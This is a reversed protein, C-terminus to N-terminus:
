YLENRSPREYTTFDIELGGEVNIKLEELAAFPLTWVRTNKNNKDIYIRTSVAGMRTLRDRMEALKLGKFNKQTLFDALTDIRFIYISDTTNKFVRGTLIHGLNDACTRNEFFEYLNFKFMAVVSLDDSSEIEKVTM